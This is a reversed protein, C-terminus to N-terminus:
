VYMCVYIYIYIYIYIHMSLGGIWAGPGVNVNECKNDVHWFVFVFVVTNKENIKSKASRHEDGEM